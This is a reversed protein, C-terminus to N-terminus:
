STAIQLGLHESCQEYPLIPDLVAQMEYCALKTRDTISLNLIFLLGM